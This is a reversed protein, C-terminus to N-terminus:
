KLPDADLISPQKEARLFFPVKTYRVFGSQTRSANLGVGM